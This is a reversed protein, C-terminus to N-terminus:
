AEPESLGVDGFRIRRLQQEKTEVAGTINREASGTKVGMQKFPDVGMDNWQSGIKSLNLDFAEGPTKKKSM